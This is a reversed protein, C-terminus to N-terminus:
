LARHDWYESLVSNCSLDWHWNKIKFDITANPPFPSNLQIQVLPNFTAKSHLYLIICIAQSLTISTARRDTSISKIECLFMIIGSSHQKNAKFFFLQKWSAVASDGLIHAHWKINGSPAHPFIWAPQTKKNKPHWLDPWATFCSTNTAKKLASKPSIM